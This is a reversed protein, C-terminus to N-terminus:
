LCQHVRCADDVVFAIPSRQIADNYQQITSAVVQCVVKSLKAITVYRLTDYRIKDNVGHEGKKRPNNQLSLIYLSLEYHFGDSSEHEAM